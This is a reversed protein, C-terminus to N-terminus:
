ARIGNQIVAFTALLLTGIGASVGVEGVRRGLTRGATVDAACGASLGVSV